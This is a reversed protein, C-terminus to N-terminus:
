HMEAAVDSKRLENWLRWAFALVVGAILFALPSLLDIQWMVYLFCVQGVAHDEGFHPQTWHFKWPKELDNGGEWRPSSWGHNRIASIECSLPWFLHRKRPLDQAILSQGRKCCAKMIFTSSASAVPRSALGVPDALQTRKNKENRVIKKEVKKLPGGCQIVAKLRYIHIHTYLPAVEERAIQMHTNCHLTSLILLTKITHISQSRLRQRWM